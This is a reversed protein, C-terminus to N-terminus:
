FQQYYLDLRRQDKLKEILKNIDFGFIRYEKGRIESIRNELEIVKQLLNPYEYYLTIIKNVGGFPCFFCSSKRPIKCFKYLILKICDIRRIGKEVLPYVYKVNYKTEYYNKLRKSNYVRSKEDVTYAIHIETKIGNARNRLLIKKIYKYFPQIKWDSTCFRNSFNPVLGTVYCYEYLSNFHLIKNGVKRKLTPKVIDIKYGLKELFHIYGYTYPMEAGTDCFVIKDYDYLTLLAVSNVGAGFSLIRYVM